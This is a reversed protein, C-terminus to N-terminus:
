SRARKVTYYIEKKIRRGRPTARVKATSKELLDLDIVPIEQRIKQIPVSQKSAIQKEYKSLLNRQKQLM